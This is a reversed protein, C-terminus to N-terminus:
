EEFDGSVTSLVEELAAIRLELVNMRRRMASAQRRAVADIQSAM